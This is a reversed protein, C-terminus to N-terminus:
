FTAGDPLVAGGQIITIIMLEYSLKKTPKETKCTKAMRIKITTKLLIKVIKAINYYKGINERENNSKTKNMLKVCDKAFAVILNNCHWNWVTM